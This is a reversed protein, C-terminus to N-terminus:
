WFTHLCACPHLMYVVRYVDSIMTLANNGGVPPGAVSQAGVILSM